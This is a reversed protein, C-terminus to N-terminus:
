ASVEADIISDAAVVAAAVVVATQEPGYVAFNQIIFRAVWGKRTETNVYAWLAKGRQTKTRSIASRAIANIDQANMDNVAADL